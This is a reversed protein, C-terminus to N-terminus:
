KASAKKDLQRVLSLIEPELAPPCRIVLSNSHAAASFVPSKEVDGYIERLVKAVEAAPANKLEVVQVRRPRPEGAARDLYDVLSKIDKYQSPSCALVLTNTRDDVSISLAAAQLRAKPNPGAPKGGVRDRYLRLVVEAVDAARAYKQPGLIWTRVLPEADTGANDLSERVLARIQKIDLPSGRVLVSNTVPEAVIRVREVPGKFAEELVQAVDPALANRLRIVEFNGENAPPANKLDLERHLRTVEERLKALEDRLKAAEAPSDRRPKPGAQLPAPPEARAASPKDAGADVWTHPLLVGAGTGALLIVVLLGALVRLKTHWMMRVVEETLAVANASVLSAAATTGSAQALAARVTARALGAPVGAALTQETLLGALAGASLAWGRRTLRLRLRDRARALRAALTGKPCGLLRAAEEHTKGEFYCLVLPRRYREPLGAVEGDLMSRLDATVVAPSGDPAAVAAVVAPQNSLARSRSRARCAVRYAVKYLWSALMERKGISGAKRALTLFTAQFADEADQEHRLLRQCLGLVTPGHRWLLLEFAAEDRRGVFRDLLDADTVDGPAATDALRHLYRALFTLPNRPM